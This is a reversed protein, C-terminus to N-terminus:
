FVVGVEVSVCCFGVHRRPCLALCSPDIWTHDFGLERSGTDLAPICDDDVFGNGVITTTPSMGSAPAGLLRPWSRPQLGATRRARRGASRLPRIGGVVREAPPVAPVVGSWRLAPPFSVLEGLPSPVVRM